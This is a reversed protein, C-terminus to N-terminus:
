LQGPIPQHRPGILSHFELLRKLDSTTDGFEPDIICKVIGDGGMDEVEVRVIMDEVAEGGIVSPEKQGGIM